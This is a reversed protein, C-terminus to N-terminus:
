QNIANDASRTVLIPTKPRTTEILKIKVRGTDHSYVPSYRSPKPSIPQFQKQDNANDNIKDSHVGNPVHKANGNLQQTPMTPTAESKIDKDENLKQLLPEEGNCLNTKKEQDHKDPILPIFEVPNQIPKGLNNKDMPKM